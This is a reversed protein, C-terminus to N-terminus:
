GSEDLYDKVLELMASTKFPKALTPYQYKMIDEDLQQKLKKIGFFGSIYIVKIKPNIERIKQVLELGSMKPMVVDTFVLDPMFKKFAEYGDIGDIAVRVDYGEMLFIDRFIEQLGFEDEVVLIKRKRKEKKRETKKFLSVIDENNLRSVLQSIRNLSQQTTKAKEANEPNLDPHYVKSLLRHSSEIYSIVSKEGLESYIERAKDFLGLYVLEKKLEDQANM